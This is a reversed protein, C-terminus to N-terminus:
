ASRWAVDHHHRGPHEREEEDTADRDDAVEEPGAVDALLVEAVLAAAPHDVVVQVV